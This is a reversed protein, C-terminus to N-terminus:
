SLEHSVHSFCIFIFNYSENTNGFVNKHTVIEKQFM